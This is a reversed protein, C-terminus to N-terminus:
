EMCSMDQYVKLLTVKPRELSGSRQCSCHIVVLGFRLVRSRTLADEEILDSSCICEGLLESFDPITLPSSQLLTQRLRAQCLQFNDQTPCNILVVSAYWVWAVGGPETVLSGWESIPDGLLDRRYPGGRHQLVLDQYFSKRELRKTEPTFHQETQPLPLLLLWLM